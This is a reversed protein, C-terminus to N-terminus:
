SLQLVSGTVIGKDLTIRAVMASTHKVVKLKVVFLQSTLLQKLAVAKPNFVDLMFSNPAMDVSLSPYKM